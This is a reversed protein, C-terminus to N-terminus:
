HSFQGGSGVWYWVQRRLYQNIIDDDGVVWAEKTVAAGGGDSDSGCSDDDVIRARQGEATESSHHGARADSSLKGM